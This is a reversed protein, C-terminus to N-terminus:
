NPRYFEHLLQLMSGSSGAGMEPPMVRFIVGM